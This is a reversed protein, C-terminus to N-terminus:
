KVFVRHSLADIYSNIPPSDQQLKNEILFVCTRELSMQLDSGNLKLIVNDRSIGYDNSPDSKAMFVIIDGKSDIRLRSITFLNSPFHIKGHRAISHSENNNHFNFAAKNKHNNVIDGIKIEDELDLMVLPFINPANARDPLVQGDKTLLYIKGKHLLKARPQKEIISVRLTDPLIRQIEAREIIINDELARRVSRPKLQFLNIQNEVVNQDRLIKQITELRSMYSHDIIIKKLVFQPNSSLLMFRLGVFMLVITGFVCSMVLAWTIATVCKQKLKLRTEEKKALLNSQTM